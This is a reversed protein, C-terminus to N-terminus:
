RSASLYRQRMPVVTPEAVERHGNGQRALERISLGVVFFFVIQWQTIMSTVALIPIQGVVAIAAPGGRRALIRLAAIIAPLLLLVTVLWGFDLAFRLYTSDVIAIGNTVYRSNTSDWQTGAAPGIFNTLALTSLLQDDRASSSSQLEAQGSGSYLSTFLFFAIGVGGALLFVSRLRTATTRETYLMLAFTLIAALIPGRSLSSLIGATLVLQLFLPHKFTRTFPMAAALTAGYAIAHGLSAESRSLGGREQIAPGIGGIDAFWGTFVHTSTAFEILGWVALAVSVVVFIRGASERAFRGIVYGGFLAVAVNTALFSEQGFVQQQVLVLGVASILAADLWTLKSREGNMMGLLARLVLGFAVPINLFSPGVATGGVFITTWFPVLLTLTLWMGVAFAPFAASVIILVVAGVAGITLLPSILALPVLGAVLVVGSAVLAVNGARTKM